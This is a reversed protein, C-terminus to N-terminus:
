GTEGCVLFEGTSSDQDVLFRRTERTGDAYSVSAPVTIDADIVPDLVTFSSIKPQRDFSRAFEAEGTRRQLQTCLKAYAAEYDEDEIATLYETVAARSQDVVMQGGFVLLAGIGFIGGVCVILVAAGALGLALWRRRRTGDTPPAAFPPQVGPGPPPPPAGPPLGVPPAMSPADPSM